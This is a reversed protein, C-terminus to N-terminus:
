RQRLIFTVNGRIGRLEFLPVFFCISGDRGYSLSLSSLTLTFASTRRVIRRRKQVFCYTIAKIAYTQIFLFVDVASHPIMEREGEREGKKDGGGGGAETLTSNILQERQHGSRVPSHVTRRSNYRNFPGKTKVLIHKLYNTLYQPLTYKHKATIYTHSLTISGSSSRVADVSPQNTM